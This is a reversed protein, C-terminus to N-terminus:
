WWEEDDTPPIREYGEIIERDIRTKKEDYFYTRSRM